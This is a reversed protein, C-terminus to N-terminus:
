NKDAGDVMLDRPFERPTRHSGGDKSQLSILRDTMLKLENCCACAASLTSPSHHILAPSVTTSDSPNANLSLLVATVFINNLGQNDLLDQLISEGEQSFAAM